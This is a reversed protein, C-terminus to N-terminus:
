DTQNPENPGMEPETIATAKLPTTGNEGINKIDCDRHVGRIEINHHEM